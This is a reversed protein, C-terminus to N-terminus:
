RRHKGPAPLNKKRRYSQYICVAGIWLRPNMELRDSRSLHSHEETQLNWFAQRLRLHKIGEFVSQPLLSLTLAMAANLWICPKINGCRWAIKHNWHRWHQLVSVSGEGTMNAVNQRNSRGGFHRNWELRQDLTAFNTSFYLLHRINLTRVYYLRRPVESM